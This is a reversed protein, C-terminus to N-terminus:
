TTTFHAMHGCRKTVATRATGMPMMPNHSPIEQQCEVLLTLLFGNPLQLDLCNLLDAPWHANYFTAHGPLPAESTYSLTRTATATM